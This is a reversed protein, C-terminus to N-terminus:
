ISVPLLQSSQFFNSTSLISPPPPRCVHNPVISPVDQSTQAEGGRQTEEEKEEESKQNAARRLQDQSERKWRLLAVILSFAPHTKNSVKWPSSMRLYLFLFFIFLNQDILLACKCEHFSLCLSFRSPFSCHPAGSDTLALSFIFSYTIFYLVGM